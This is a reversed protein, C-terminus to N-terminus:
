SLPEVREPLLGKEVIEHFEDAMRDTEQLARRWFAIRQETELTRFDKRDPIKGYPLSEVFARSPAILLLADHHGPTAKRWPLAKDFWGPIIRDIFHPMLAIGEEDGQLFPLDFHYDIIGGDRYIGPPAHAIDRVGDLMIPIASSAMIAERLNDPGLPIHRIPFGKLDAFDPHHRPDHFLAREFFLGLSKRSVLNGLAAAGLGLGLPLRRENNVLTRSRVAMVHLRMPGEFAAHRGREGLLADLIDYSDAIIKAPGDGDRYRYALYSEEFRQFAEIPDPQAYCAFRWTGISSGILPLPDRRDKLWRGLIAQDLRSLGLWKPGGSAGVMLKIRAPDLGGDRAILRRARRGAKFTLASAFQKM